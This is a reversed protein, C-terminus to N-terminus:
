RGLRRRRLSDEIWADIAEAEEDPLDVFRVGMGPVLRSGKSWLRSWVVECTCRVTHGLPPPLPIEVDFCEGPDKPSTANIFLGGRSINSAYGFFVRSEDESRVRQVILPSRLDKRRDQGAHPTAVASEHIM